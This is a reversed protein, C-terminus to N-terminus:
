YVQISYTIIFWVDICSIYCIVLILSSFLQFLTIYQPRGSGGQRRLTDNTKGLISPITTLYIYDVKKLTKPHGRTPMRTAAKLPSGAERAPLLICSCMLTQYSESAIFMIM